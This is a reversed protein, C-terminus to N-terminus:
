ASSTLQRSRGQAITHDPWITLSLNLPSSTVGPRIVGNTRHEDSSWPWWRCFSLATGALINLRREMDLGTLASLDSTALYSSSTGGNVHLQLRSYSAYSRARVRLSSTASPFGQDVPDSHGPPNFVPPEAHSDTGDEVTVEKEHVPIVCCSAVSRSVPHQCVLSYRMVHPSGRQVRRAPELSEIRAPREPVVLVYCDDADWAGLVPVM